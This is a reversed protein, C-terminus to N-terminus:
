VAADSAADKSNQAVQAAGHIGAIWSAAVASDLAELDDIVSKWKHAQQLLEKESDSISSLPTGKVLFEVTTGKAEALDVAENARPFRREGKYSGLTSPPMKAKLALAFDKIDELAEYRQWFETADASKGRGM